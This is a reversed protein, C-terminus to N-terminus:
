ASLCQLYLREVERAKHIWDIRGLRAIAAKSKARAAEPDALASIVAQALSEHSDPSFLILADAGVYRVFESCGSSIAVPTGCAIAELATLSFTERYSPLVFLDSANYYLPLLSHQVPGAFEVYDGIGLRRATAKLSHKLVGEGVIVLRAERYSRMIQTHAHLLAGLNKIPILRAVALIVKGQLGLKERCEVKDLTRFLSLDVGGLMTEAVNDLGNRIFVDRINDNTPIIFNALRADNLHWSAPPGHFTAIVPVKVKRKLRVAAKLSAPDHTHIIDYEHSKQLRNYLSHSYQLHHLLGAAGSLFKLDL